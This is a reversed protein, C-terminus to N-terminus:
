LHLLIPVNHANVHHVGVSVQGHLRQTHEAYQWLLDICVEVELNIIIDSDIHVGERIVKFCVPSLAVEIHDTEVNVAHLVCGM